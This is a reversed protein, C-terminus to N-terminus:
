RLEVSHHVSPMCVVAKHGEDPRSGCGKDVAALSVAETVAISNLVDLTNYMKSRVHCLVHDDEHERSLNMVSATEREHLVCVIGSM